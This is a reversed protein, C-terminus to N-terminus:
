IEVELWSTKQSGKGAMLQAKGSLNQYTSNTADQHNRQNAYVYIRGFYYNITEYAQLAELLIRNQELKGKYNQFHDLEKELLEYEKEFQSDDSYIDELKWTNEIKQEQRTIM